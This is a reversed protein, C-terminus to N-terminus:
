LASSGAEMKVHPQLLLLLLELGQRVHLIESPALHVKHNGTVNQTQFVASFIILM